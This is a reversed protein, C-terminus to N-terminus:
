AMLVIIAEDPPLDLRGLQWPRRDQIPKRTSLFLTGERVSGSASCTLRRTAFNVAVLM